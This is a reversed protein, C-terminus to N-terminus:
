GEVTELAPLAPLGDISELNHEQQYRV